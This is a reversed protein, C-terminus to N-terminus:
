EGQAPKEDTNEPKVVNASDAGAAPKEDGSLNGVMNQLTGLRSRLLNIEDKQQQESLRLLELHKNLRNLTQQHESKIQEINAIDAKASQFTERLKVLDGRAVDRQDTVDRLSKQSQDLQEELRQAQAKAASLQSSLNAIEDRLRSRDIVEGTTAVSKEVTNELLQNYSKAAEDRQEILYKERAVWQEEKYYAFYYAMAAMLILFILSIVTFVFVSVGRRRVALLTPKQAETIASAIFTAADEPTWKVPSSPHLITSVHEFRGNNMDDAMIIGRIGRAHRRSKMDASDSGSASTFYGTAVQVPNALIINKGRM